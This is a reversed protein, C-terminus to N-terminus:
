TKLVSKKRRTKICQTKKKKQKKQTANKFLKKHTKSARALMVPHKVTVHKSEAQAPFREAGFDSINHVPGMSYCSIQSALEPRHTKYINLGKLVEWNHIVGLHRSPSLFNGPSRCAISCNCYMHCTLIDLNPFLPHLLM